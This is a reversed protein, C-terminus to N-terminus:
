KWRRREPWPAPTVLVTDSRAPVTNPRTYATGGNTGVNVSATQRNAADYYNAVYYVRAYPHTTPNGLPGGQTENDFRDRTVQLLINGDNDYSYETQQLVNNTSSVTTADSWTSDGNADTSYVVTPRGAGDYSTKTTAAGPPSTKIALGRHNYWTNTTLSYSSVTGNTQDVSYTNTQYIRGQEDYEATTQARLLSASPPNPVGATFTLMVGDGDYQQSTLVHGLNDLQYYLIPRHTGDNESAQVGQKSAVLRDRWDYFFQTVRPPASGGPYDTEQTLDSDGIGGNDYQYQATMVLNADSTGVKEDVARGLGDYDSACFPCLPTLNPKRRVVL